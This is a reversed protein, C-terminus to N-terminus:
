AVGPENGVRGRLIREVAAVVSKWREESAELKQRGRRTISYIFRKRGGVLEPVSALLGERELRHLVPYVSGEPFDLRAETGEVIARILQYGHMLERELLALILLEPVGNIFDGRSAQPPSM